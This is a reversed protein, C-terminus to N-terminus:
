ACKGKLREVMGQLQTKSTATDEVFVDWGVPKGANDTWIGFSQFRTDGVVLDKKRMDLKGTVFIYHSPGAIVACKQNAFLVEGREEEAMVSPAITLVALLFLFWRLVQM